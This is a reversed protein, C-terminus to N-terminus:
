ERKPWTVIQNLQLNLQM